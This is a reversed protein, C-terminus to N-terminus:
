FIKNYRTLTFLFMQGHDLHPMRLICEVCVVNEYNLHVRKGTSNFRISVRIEYM